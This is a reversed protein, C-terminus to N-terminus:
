EQVKTLENCNVYGVAKDVYGSSCKINTILCGYRPLCEGVVVGKCTGYFADTSLEVYTNYKLKPCTDALKKTKDTEHCGIFVLCYVLVITKKIM